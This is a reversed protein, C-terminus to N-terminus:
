PKNVWFMVACAEGAVLAVIGVCILIAGIM